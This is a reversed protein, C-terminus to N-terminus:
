SSRYRFDGLPTSPQSPTEENQQSKKSARALGAYRDIDESILMEVSVSRAM